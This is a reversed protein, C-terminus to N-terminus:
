VANRPDHLTQAAKTALDLCGLVTERHAAATAQSAARDIGSPVM